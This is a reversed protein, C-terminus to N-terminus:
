EPLTIKECAVGRAHILQVLWANEELEALPDFGSQEYEFYGDEGIPSIPSAEMQGKYVRWDAVDRQFILSVLEGPQLGTAEVKILDPSLAFLNMEMGEPLPTCIVPTATPGPTVVELTVSEASIADQVMQKGGFLYAMVFVIAVIVLGFVVILKKM